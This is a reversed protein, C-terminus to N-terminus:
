SVRPAPHARKFWTKYLAGVVMSVLMYLLVAATIRKDNFATNAILMAIGPHRVSSAVALTARDLDAPGGLLHGGVLTALALVAMAIVTGNGILDQIAPWIAALIPVFALLVLLMSLKYVWPAARHAIDPALRGIIVGLGLPILVGTGVTAAILRVPLTVGHGFLRAALDFVLPVAIITLLAMAVYVGYAYEKRAGIGLEKGPVLPPVPAIAMLMIGAKVVPELPLLWILAAAALPPIIEVALIAKALLGPRRLVYILDGPGSKLGVTLVLGALSLTLLLPLIQKLAEM